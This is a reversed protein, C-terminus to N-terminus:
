KIFSRMLVGGESQWRVFYMGSPLQDVPLWEQSQRVAKQALVKGQMDMVELLGSPTSLDSLQIRIVDSAPNPFLEMSVGVPLSGIGVASELRIDDIYLDGGNDNITTFRILDDGWITLTVQKWNAPDSIDTSNSSNMDIGGNAWLRDVSGSQDCDSIADIILSDRFITAKTRYYYHFTIDWGADPVLEFRPLFFEDRQRNRPLYESFPMVLARDGPYDTNVTDVFWNFKDDGPAFYIGTAFMDVSDFNVWEWDVWVVNEPITARYDFRIVRQNDFPDWDDITIDGHDVRVVLENDGLQLGGNWLFDVTDRQGANLFSLVTYDVQQGNYWLSVQPYVAMSDGNNAIEVSVTFVSDCTTAFTPSLIRTVVLDNDRPLPPVPTFLTSLSDFAAKVDIIGMGYVNDEGPDGLDTASYYLAELIEKGSAMPFAEKLLLVAGTVHPSAMSTGNYLAYGNDDIASRVQVGPASVEPKIKQAGTGPCITPGRSSFGAIPYSSSRADLAGVAFVNVLGSNIFAPRGVTAPDPGNNGASFVVAIGAAQLADFMDSAFSNCLTTDTSALGWSNNIAFPVDYTTSTDGDPNFVWEYVGIYVPLPKIKSLDDVIPDTASFRAGPAVGITDRTAPDLGLVIGAVHTGHSSSKDRPYYSDVGNWGFAGPMNHYLFRDRVAPHNMRIGTDYILAHQGRGSYGMKWLEDARIALLGPETGGPSRLPASERIEVPEILYAKDEDYLQLYRIQPDTILQSLSKKDTALSIMNVLWHTETITIAPPAVSQWTQQTHMAHQQLARAVHRPREQVPVQQQELQRELAAIDFRDQLYVNVHIPEEWRQNLVHVIGTSLHPQAMTAASVCLAILLLMWVKM